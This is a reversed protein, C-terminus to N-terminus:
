KLFASTSHSQSPSKTRNTTRTKESMIEKVLPRMQNIEAETPMAWASVASMALAAALGCALGRVTQFGTRGIAGSIMAAGQKLENMM